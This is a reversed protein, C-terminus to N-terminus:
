EQPLPVGAKRLEEMAEMLLDRQSDSDTGNYAQMLEQMQEIGQASLERQRSTWEGSDGGMSTNAYDRFNQLDNATEKADSALRKTERTQQQTDRQQQQQQEQQSIVERADQQPGEQGPDEIGSNILGPKAISAPPSDQGGRGQMGEYAGLVESDADIGQAYTRMEQPIQQLRAQQEDSLPMGSKGIEQLSSLEAQLSEIYAQDRDNWTDAGFNVGDPADMPQIDGTRSNVRVLSGDSAQMVDWDNRGMAARSNAGRERKMALDRQQQRNLQNEGSTFEQGAVRESTQFERQNSNVEKTFEQGAIRESTQFEQRMKQLAQERMQKLKSNATEEMARGGGSLAAGLLGLAM